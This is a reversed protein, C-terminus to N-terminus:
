LIGIIKIIIKSIIFLCKKKYRLSMIRFIGAFLNFLFPYVMSIFFSIFNDKILPIQTNYYVACFASLYYWFGFLMILGIFFFLICKIKIYRRIRQIEYKIEKENIKEKLNIIQDNPLSLIELLFSILQSAITSYIMQPIQYLIDYKGEDEYIKHMSDDNFFLANMFFFLAFSILFLSFKLLFINYDNRVFFTFLILHTEKLLSFYFQFDLSNLEEETFYKYRKSEPILYIIKNIFENNKNEKEKDLNTKNKNNQILFNYNSSIFQNSYIYIGDNNNQQNM